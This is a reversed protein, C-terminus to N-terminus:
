QAMGTIAGLAAGIGIGVPGFPAGAAGGAVAGGVAGALSPDRWYTTKKPMPQVGALGAAVAAMNAYVEIPWMADERGLDIQEMLEGHEASIRYGGVTTLAKASDLELTARARMAILMDEVAQSTFKSHVQIILQYLERRLGARYKRVAGAGENEMLAMGMIFASGSVANIDVMGGAFRSLSRLYDKDADSEFEDVEDDVVSSDISALAKVIIGDIYADSGVVGELLLAKWDNEGLTLKVIEVMAATYNADISDLVDRPSYSSKVSSTNTYLIIEFEDGASNAAPFAPSVQVCHLTPGGYSAVITRKLGENVGSLMEVVGGVWYSNAQTLVSTDKVIVDMQLSTDVIGSIDDIVESPGPISFPSSGIAIKGKSVLSDVQTLELGGAALWDANVPDDPFEGWLMQEFVGAMATPPTTYATSGGGGFAM